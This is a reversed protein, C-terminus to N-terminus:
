AERPWTRQHAWSSRAVAWPSLQVVMPPIAPCIKEVIKASRLRPALVSVREAGAPIYGPATGSRGQRGCPGGRRASARLSTGCASARGGTGSVSVLRNM